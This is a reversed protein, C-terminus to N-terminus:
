LHEKKKNNMYKASLHAILKSITQIADNTQDLIKKKQIRLLLVGYLATFCVDIDSTAGDNLKHLVHNINPKALEFIEKYEQEEPNKLLQLHFLNLENILNKNIQIHGNKRVNEITMMEIINQYWQKTETKKNNDIDFNSIYNKEILNIDFNYARILDEIQWMYIIYEAINETRKKQAIIM